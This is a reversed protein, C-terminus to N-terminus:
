KQDYLGFFCQKARNFDSQLLDAVNHHGLHRLGIDLYELAWESPSFSSLVPHQQYIEPLSWVEFTKAM